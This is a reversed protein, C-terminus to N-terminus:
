VARDHDRRDNKVIRRHIEETISRLRLERDAHAIANM